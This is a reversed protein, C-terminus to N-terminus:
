EVDAEEEGGAQLQSLAVARGELHGLVARRDIGKERDEKNTVIGSRRLRRLGGTPVTPITRTLHDFPIPLAGRGTQGGGCVGSPSNGAPSDLRPFLIQSLDLHAALRDDLTSLLRRPSLVRPCSILPASPCGLQFLTALFGPMGSLMLMLM